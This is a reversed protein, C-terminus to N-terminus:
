HAALPLAAHACPKVGHCTRQMCAPWVFVALCPAQAPLPSPFHMCRRSQASPSGPPPVWRCVPGARVLSGAGRSAEQAQLCGSLSPPPSSCRHTFCLYCGAPPVADCRANQGACVVQPEGSSSSSTPFCSPAGSSCSKVLSRCACAGPGCWLCLHTPVGQAGQVAGRSVAPM